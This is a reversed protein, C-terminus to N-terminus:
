KLFASVKWMYGRQTESRYGRLLLAAAGQPDHLGGVLPAVVKDDLAAFNAPQQTWHTSEHEM